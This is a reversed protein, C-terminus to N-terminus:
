LEVSLGLAAELVPLQLAARESAVAVGLAPLHGLARLSLGLGFGSGLGQEVHLGILGVGGFVSDNQARLPEQVDGSAQLFALGAGALPALSFGGARLIVYRLELFALERHV